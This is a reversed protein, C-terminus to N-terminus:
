SSGEDGKVRRKKRSLLERISWVLGYLILFISIGYYIPIRAESILAMALASAIIIALLAAKERLGPGRQNAKPAAEVASIGAITERLERLSQFREHPDPKLAKTLAEPPIPRLKEEMGPPLELRMSDAPPHTGTAMFYICAGLSYVDTRIDTQGSGYQEPPAYGPTGVLLTDKKKGAKYFRAIGFDILKIRREPTIMINQPKLDRYVVGKEHIYELADIIQLTIGAIMDGPLGDGVFHELTEGDIWEEVLCAKGGDLFFDIVAPLTAHSFAALLRAEGQFQRYELSDGPIPADSKLEKLAWQKQLRQDEVRYIHSMGGESVPELIRYRNQLLEGTSRM